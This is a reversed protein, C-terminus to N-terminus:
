CFDLKMLVLPNQHQCIHQGFHTKNERGVRGTRDAGTRGSTPGSPEQGRAEGGIARGPQGRGEGTGPTELRLAQLSIYFLTHSLASNLTNQRSLM